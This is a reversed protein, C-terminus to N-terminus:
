EMRVSMASIRQNIKNTILQGSAMSAMKRKGSIHSIKKGNLIKPNVSTATNSAIPAM